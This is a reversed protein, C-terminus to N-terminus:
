DLPEFKKPGLHQLEFGGAEGIRGADVRLVPCAGRIQEVIERKAAVIDALQLRLQGGKAKRRKAAVLRVNHCPQVGHQFDDILNNSWFLRRGVWGVARRLDAFARRQKLLVGFNQKSRQRGAAM